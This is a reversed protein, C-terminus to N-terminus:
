SAELDEETICLLKAFFDDIEDLNTSLEKKKQKNNKRQWKENIQRSVWEKSAM